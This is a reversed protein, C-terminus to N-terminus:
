DSFRKLKAVEQVDKTIKIRNWSSDAKKPQNVTANTTGEWAEFGPNHNASNLGVVLWTCDGEDSPLTAVIAGREVIARLGVYVITEM